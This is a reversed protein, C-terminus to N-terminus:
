VRTLREILDSHQPYAKLLKQREAAEFTEYKFEPVTTCGVFSYGTQGDVEAAFWNGKKVMAFPTAEADSEPNGVLIKSLEGEPTIQYLALTDGSYFHWLEDCDIRHFCSFDPAEVLYYISAAYRRSDSNRQESEYIRKFYGGEESLPEIKYRKILENTVTM